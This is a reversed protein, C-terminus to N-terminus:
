VNAAAAAEVVNYNSSKRVILSPQLLQVIQALEPRELKKALLSLATKLQEAHPQRVASLPIGLARSIWAFEDYMVISVDEPIRLKREKLINVTAWTAWDGDILMSDFTIGKDLACRVIRDTLTEDYPVVEVVREMIDGAYGADTMAKSFGMLKNRHMKLSLPGVLLLPNRRGTELLHNAAIQAGNFNNVAVYSVESDVEPAELAVFPVGLESLDALAERSLHFGIVFGAYDRHELERWPWKDKQTQVQLPRLRRRQPHIEILFEEESRSFLGSISKSLYPDDETADLFVAVRRSMVQPHEAASLVYTGSGQVRDILNMRKLRNLSSRVTVRSCAYQEALERETPLKSGQPLAGQKIADLLAHFLQGNKNMKANAYIM